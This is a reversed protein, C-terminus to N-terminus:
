GQRKARESLMRRLRRSYKDRCTKCLGSVRTEGTAPNRVQNSAPDFKEGCEACVGSSRATEIRAHAARAAESADLVYKLAKDIEEPTGSAIESMAIDVVRDSLTM